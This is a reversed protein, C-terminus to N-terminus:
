NSNASKRYAYNYNLIPSIKSIMQDIAMRIETDRNEDHNFYEENNFEAVVFGELVHNEDRIGVLYLSKTDSFAVFEEISNDITATNSVNETKYVGTKWLDEIFDNYLHLPMDIHSKGRLTNNGGNTWEHVCSMKFFPLGHMSKNGNHFVYIAIRSCDITSLATRSADKFAMNVDIYAGVLDKHYEDDKKKEDVFAELADHMPKIAKDFEQKVENAQEKDRNAKSALITEVLKKLIEQEMNDSSQQRSFLQTMMKTNNRLVLFVLAIFILFFIAMLVVMYGYEDIAKAFNSVGDVADGIDSVVSPTNTSATLALIRNM